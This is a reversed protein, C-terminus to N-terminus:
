TLNFKWIISVCSQALRLVLIYQDLKTSLPEIENLIALSQRIVAQRDSIRVQSYRQGTAILELFLDGSDIYLNIM